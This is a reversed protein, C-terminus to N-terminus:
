YIGYPGIQQSLIMSARGGRSKKKIEEETPTNRRVLYLLADTAHDEGDTDYLDPNHRDYQLRPLTRILNKCNDMIKLRSVGNVVKLYERLNEIGGRKDKKVSRQFTVGNKQFIQAEAVENPQASFCGIDLYRERIYEGRKREIDRILEAVYSPNHRIGTNYKTSRGFAEESGYLEDYIIVEGNHTEYAWLFCYPHATGWDAGMWRKATKPVPHWPIVHVEHNWETFFAGELVDWRGDLLKKRTVEPQNMLNARYVGDDDLSPNDSLRAPIFVRSWTHKKEGVKQDLREVKHGGPFEDIRFRKMVWSHGPGGPNSTSVVRLPVGKSSRMRTMLFAYAEEDPWLTLEDWAMWNFERGVYRGVDEYSELYGMELVAGDSYEFIKKSEKWKPANPISYFMNQMSRIMDELESNTRRLILGKANGKYKAHQAIWDFVIGASKGGGAAGGYLIESCPCQIFEWQKPHPRFVERGPDTTTQTM